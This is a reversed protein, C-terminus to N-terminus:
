NLADGIYSLKFVPVGEKNKIFDIKFRAGAYEVVFINEEDTYYEDKGNCYEEYWDRVKEEKEEDTLGTLSKPYEFEYYEPNVEYCYTNKTILAEATLNVGVEYKTDYPLPLLLLKNQPTEQQLVMLPQEMSITLNDTYCYVYYRVKNSVFTRYQYSYRTGDKDWAVMKQEISYKQENGNEDKEDLDLFVKGFKAKGNDNTQEQSFTIIYEDDDYRELHKAWAESIKYYDNQVFIRTAPSSNQTTNVNKMDFFLSPIDDPYLMHVKLSDPITVYVGDPHTEYKNKLCSCSSSCLLALLVTCLFIIRKKM